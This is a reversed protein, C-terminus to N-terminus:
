GQVSNRWNLVICRRWRSEYWRDPPLAAAARSTTLAQPCVLLIEQADDVANAIHAGDVDADTMVIRDYRLNDGDGIRGRACGLMLSLDAIEKTARIKDMTAGAVNSIKGWNFNGRKTARRNKASGGASDGEV